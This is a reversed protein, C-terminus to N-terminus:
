LQSTIKAHTENCEITNVFDYRLAIRSGTTKKGNSVKKTETISFISDVTILIEENSNHGHVLVTQVGAESLATKVREVSENVFYTHKDPIAANGITVLVTSSGVVSRTAVLIVESNIIIATNDPANHLTIFKKDM